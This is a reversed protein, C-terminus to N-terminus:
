ALVVGKVHYNTYCHEEVLNVLNLQGYIEIEVVNQSCKRIIKTVGWVWPSGNYKYAKPRNGHRKCFIDKM